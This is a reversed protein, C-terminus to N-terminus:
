TNGYRARSSSTPHQGVRTFCFYFLVGTVLGAIVDILYHAYIYVTSLCMLIFFPLITFILGKSRTRLALLMVVTTIGVHSSPFAATPREGADHTLDLMHYWFGESWGPSAMRESHTLFWDNLNPFVGEAIKDVGVALYYFQPGTVPLLVFIVYYIFFSGLMALAAMQFEHYRLLFYYVYVLLMLPFYSVYGICMLESFWGWPVKQSFLLSPQCGFLQQEWTAFLHDLNPLARNLEYTDPYWWSLMAMQVVIRLFMTIRCPLLRYVVWMGLTAALFSVRGSLMSSPNQLKDWLLTMMVLTFVLYGIAIWEVVLLGKRPKKELQFYDKIKIVM